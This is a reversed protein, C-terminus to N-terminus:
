LSPEARRGARVDPLALLMMVTVVVASAVCWACIADILFLELYTLYASYLAGAFALAFTWLPLAAVLAPGVEFRRAVLMAALAAYMGLGLVAVPMGAVDAYESDQVTHCDGAPGCVAEASSLAVYSLYGAIAVGLVSLVLLLNVRTGTPLGRAGAERRTSRRSSSRWRSTTGSSRM